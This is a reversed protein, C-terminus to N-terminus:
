PSGLVWDPGAATWRHTVEPTDGPWPSSTCELHIQTADPRLTRVQDLVYQPLRDGNKGKDDCTNVLIPRIRRYRLLPHLVRGGSHHPEGSRYLLEGDAFVQFRRVENPGSGYLSWKQAIRLPRQTWALRDAVADRWPEIAKCPGRAEPLGLVLM